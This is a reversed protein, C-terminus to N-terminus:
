NAARVGGVHGMCPRPPVLVHSLVRHGCNQGPTHGGVGDDGLVHGAAGPSTLQHARPVPTYSRGRTAGGACARNGLSSAREQHLSWARLLDATSGGAVLDEHRRTVGVVGVARLQAAVEDGSFIHFPGRSRIADLGERALVVAAEALRLGPSVERRDLAAHM